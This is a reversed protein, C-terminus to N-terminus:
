YDFSNETFRYDSLTHFKRIVNNNSTVPPNYLYAFFTKQTYNILKLPPELKTLYGGRVM